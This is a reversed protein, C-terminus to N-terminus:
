PNRKGHVILAISRRRGEDLGRACQLLGRRVQVYGIAPRSNANREGFDLLCELTETRHKPNVGGPVATRPHVDRIRILAVGNGSPLGPIGLRAVGKSTADHDNLM